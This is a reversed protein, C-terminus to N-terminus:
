SLRYRAAEASRAPRLTAPPSRTKTPLSPQWSKRRSRNRSRPSTWVGDSNRQSRMSNQPPFGCTATPRRLALRRRAPSPPRSNSPGVRFTPLGCRGRIWAELATYRAEADDAEGTKHDAGGVIVYDFNGRGPQLRVYHYPDLTDWFLADEIDAKPITLAMAYTRYLAQKAHIAVRDNIPSNTAVVACQGQAVYGNGTKVTVGDRSESIDDVRTGAYLRGGNKKIAAALGRLYRLPHFTAQNAYRLCRINNLGKFPLGKTWAVDIGVQQGAAFENTLESADTGPAPFLYGPVRRFNCEIGAKSQIAEIRDVAGSQSELFDRAGDIGRVKILTEFSDDSVYSLHATTRATMGTGIKGRDLVVVSQGQSSLEYATSLGAIGSGVIITHASENRPLATAEPAVEVDM